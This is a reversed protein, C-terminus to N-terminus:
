CMFLVIGGVKKRKAEMGTLFGLSTTLVIVRKGEKIKYLDKLNLSIKKTPKSIIKLFNLKYSSGLIIKSLKVRDSYFSNYSQILGEKYLIQLISAEVKDFNRYLVRKNARSANKLTILFDILKNKMETLYYNDFLPNSGSVCPNEIWQEVGSSNRCFNKCM